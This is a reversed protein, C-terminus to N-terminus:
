HYNEHNESLSLWALIYQFKREKKAALSRNKMVNPSDTEFPDGVINHNDQFINNLYILHM